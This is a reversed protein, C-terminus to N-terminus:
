SEIVKLLSFAKLDYLYRVGIKLKMLLECILEELDDTRRWEQNGHQDPDLKANKFYNSIANVIVQAEPEINVREIVNM